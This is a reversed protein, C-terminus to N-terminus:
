ETVMIQKIDIFADDDPLWRNPSEGEKLYQYLKDIAEKETEAEIVERGTLVWDFDINYKKMDYDEQLKM